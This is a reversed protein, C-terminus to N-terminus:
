VVFHCGRFSLCIHFTCFYGVKFVASVPYSITSDRAHDRHPDKLPKRLLNHPPAMKGITGRLLFLRQKCRHIIFM